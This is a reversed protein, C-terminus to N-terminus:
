ADSKQDVVPHAPAFNQRARALEIQHGVLGAQRQLGPEMMGEFIGITEGVVRAQHHEIGDIGGLMAGHDAGAGAAHAGIAAVDPSQHEIGAAYAVHDRRADQDVGDAGPALQEGLRGQPSRRLM